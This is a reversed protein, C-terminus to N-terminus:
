PCYSSGLFRSIVSAIKRRTIGLQELKKWDEAREAKPEASTGFDGKGKIEQKIHEEEHPLIVDRLYTTILDEMEKHAKPDM